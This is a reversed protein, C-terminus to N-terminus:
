ENVLRGEKFVKSWKKVFEESFSKEKVEISFVHTNKDGQLFYYLLAGQHKKELFEPNEIKYLVWAREGKKSEELITVRGKPAKEKLAEIYFNKLFEVNYKKPNKFYAYTFLLNWDEKNEQAPVLEIIRIDDNEVNTVVNWEYEEPFNIELLEEKEQGFFMQGFLVVFVFIIKKM